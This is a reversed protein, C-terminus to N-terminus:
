FRINCMRAIAEVDSKNDEQEWLRGANFTDFSDISLKEEGLEEIQEPHLIEAYVYSGKDPVLTTTLKPQINMSKDFDALSIMRYRKENRREAVLLLYDSKSAPAVFLLDNPSTLFTFLTNPQSFGRKLNSLGIMGNKLVSILLDEAGETDYSFIVKGDGEGWVGIKPSPSCAIKGSLYFSVFLYTSTYGMEAKKQLPNPRLASTQIDILAKKKKASAAAPQKKPPVEKVAPLVVPPNSVAANADFVYEQKADDFLTPFEPKCPTSDLSADRRQIIFDKINDIPKIISSSGSRTYVNGNVKVVENLPPVRFALVLRGDNYEHFACRIYDQYRNQDEKGEGLQRIIGVNVTRLYYDSDFHCMKLDQELGSLYGKDTVGIYLTGGDTNMFSAIVRALAMIQVEEANKVPHILASTKFERDIGEHGFYVSVPSKKKHDDHTEKFGLLESIHKFIIEQLERDKETMYILMSLYRACESLVKNEGDMLRQLYDKNKDPISCLLQMVQNFFDLTDAYHEIGVQEMRAQLINFDRISEASFREGAAKSALAHINYLYDACVQYYAATQGYGAFHCLLQMFCYADLQEIPDAIDKTLLDLCYILEEATSHSMTKSPSLALDEYEETTEADAPECALVPTNNELIEKLNLLTAFPNNKQKLTEHEQQQVKDPLEKNKIFSIFEKLNNMVEAQFDAEVVNARAQCIKVIPRMSNASACLFEVKYFDGIHPKIWRCHPTITTAGTPLLWKLKGEEFDALMAPMQSNLTHEHYVFENFYHNLAVKVGEPNVDIVKAKFSDNESLLQLFGDIRYYCTNFYTYPLVAKMGRYAKDLIVGEWYEGKAASKVIGITVEDNIAPYLIEPQDTEEEINEPYYSNTTADAPQYLPFETQFQKWYLYHEELSKCRDFLYTPKGFSVVFVRNDLLAARDKKGKWSRIPNPFLNSLTFGDRDLTLVNQGNSYQEWKQEDTEAPSSLEEIRINIMKGIFDNLNFSLLDEWSIRGNLTCEGALLTYAKNKLLDSYTNEFRALYRCIRASLINEPYQRESRNESLLLLASTELINDILLPELAEHAKSFWLGAIEKERRTIHREIIKAIRQIDTSQLLNNEKLLYITTLLTPIHEKFVNADYEILHIVINVKSIYNCLYGSNQLKNILSDIYTATLENSIIYWAEKQLSITEIKQEIEKRKEKIQPFYNVHLYRSEECMWRYLAIAKNFYECCLEDGKLFLYAGTDSYFLAAEEASNLDHANRLRCIEQWRNELESNKCIGNGSIVERDILEDIQNEMMQYEDPTIYNTHLYNIM